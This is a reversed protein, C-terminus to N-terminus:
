ILGKKFRKIAKKHRVFDLEKHKHPKPAPRSDYERKAETLANYIKEIPFLSKKIKFNKQVVYGTENYWWHDFKFKGGEFGHELRKEEDTYLRVGSANTEIIIEGRKKDLFISEVASFNILAIKRYVRRIGFLVSEGAYRSVVAESKGVRVFTLAKNGAIRKEFKYIATWCIFIEAVVGSCVSYLYIKAYENYLFARLNTILLLAGVVGGTFVVFLTV